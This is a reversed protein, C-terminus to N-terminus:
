IEELAERIDPVEQTLQDLSIEEGTIRFARRTSPSVIVVGLPQKSGLFSLGGYGHWYNLSVRTVPILTVGAVTVPKAINVEKKKEM